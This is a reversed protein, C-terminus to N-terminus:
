PEAVFGRIDLAVKPHLLLSIVQSKGFVSPLNDHRNANRMDDRRYMCLTPYNELAFSCSGFCSLVANLLHFCYIGEVTLELSWGRIM